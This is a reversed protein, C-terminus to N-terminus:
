QDKPSVFVTTKAESFLGGENVAFISVSATVGTDGNGDTGRLTLGGVISAFIASAAAILGSLGPEIGYTRMM